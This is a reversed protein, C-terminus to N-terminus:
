PVTPTGDRVATGLFESVTERVTTDDFLVRHPDGGNASRVLAVSTAGNVNNTAPLSVEDLDDLPLAGPGVHQQSYIARALTQQAAASTTPDDPVVIQLVDVDDSSQDFHVFRAQNVPDTRDVVGQGFQLVPQFRDIAVDGFASAPYSALAIPAETGAIIETWWAGANALVGGVVAPERALVTPGVSAGIGHGVFYMRSADFLV